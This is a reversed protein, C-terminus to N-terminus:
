TNRTLVNTVSGAPLGKRDGLWPKDCRPQCLAVVRNGM